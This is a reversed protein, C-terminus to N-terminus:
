IHISLAKNYWNYDETNLTKVFDSESKSLNDFGMRKSNEHPLDLLNNIKFIQKFRSISDQIYELFGVYAFDDPSHNSVWRLIQNQFTEIECFEIFEIGNNFIDTFDFNRLEDLNKLRIYEYNLHNYLSLLMTVPDRIWTVLAANPLKPKYINAVLHGHLCKFKSDIQITDKMQEKLTPYYYLISEKFIEKLLLGFSTGGTKPIHISLFEVNYNIPM